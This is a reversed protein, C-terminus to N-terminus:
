FGWPGSPLPVRLVLSFILYFGFASGAAVAVVVPVSRKEMALVFFATLLAFSAYFGLTTLLVVGMMIAFWSVLSRSPKNPNEHSLINPAFPKRLTAFILLLSLGIIVIGLWLPLFGPGPGIDSTYDLSLARLLIFTGLGSLFLGALVEGQLLAKWRKLM